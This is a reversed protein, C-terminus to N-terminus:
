VVNKYADYIYKVSRINTIYVANKRFLILYNLKM